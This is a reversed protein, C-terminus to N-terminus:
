GVPTLMMPNIAQTDAANSIAAQPVTQPAAANAQIIQQTVNNPDVQAPLASQPVAAVAGEAGPVQTNAQAEVQPTTDTYWVKELDVNNSLPRPNPLDIYM